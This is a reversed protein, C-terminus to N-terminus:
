LNAACQSTSRLRPPPFSLTKGICPFSPWAILQQWITSHSHPTPSSTSFIYTVFSSWQPSLLSLATFSTSSPLHLKLTAISFSSRRHRHLARKCEPSKSQNQTFPLRDKRMHVDDIYVAAVQFDRHDAVIWQPWYSYLEDECKIQWREAKGPEDDEHRIWSM